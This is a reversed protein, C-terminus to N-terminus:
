RVPWYDNRLNTQPVSVEPDIQFTTPRHPTTFKVISDGQRTIHVPVLTLEDSADTTYGLSTIFEYDKDAAVDIVVTAEYQSGAAQLTVQQITLDIRAVRVTWQKLFATVDAQTHRQLIQILVAVTGKQQASQQIFESVGAQLAADGMLQRLQEWVLAGYDYALIWEGQGSNKDSFAGATELTGPTQYGLAHNLDMLYQTRAKRGFEKGWLTEGAWASMFNAGGESWWDILSGSSSGQFGSWNKFEEHGVMIKFAMQRDQDHDINEFSGTTGLYVINGKNVASGEVNAPMFVFRFNHNGPDGFLRRYLKFYQLAIDSMVESYSQDPTLYFEVTDGDITKQQKHFVACAFAPDYAQSVQYTVTMFHGDLEEAVQEGPIACRESDPHRIKIELPVAGDPEIVPFAGSDFGVAHQVQPSVFLEYLNTGPGTQFSARPLHYDLSLTLAQGSELDQAFHVLVQNLVVTGSLHPYQVPTSYHWDEVVLPDGQSNKFDLRDIILSPSILFTMDRRITESNMLSITQSSRFVSAAPDIEFYLQLATTKLTDQDPSIDSKANELFLFNIVIAQAAIVVCLALLVLATKQSVHINLYGM